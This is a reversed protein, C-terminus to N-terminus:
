DLIAFPLVDDARVRLDEVAVQLRRTPSAQVNVNALQDPSGVLLLALLAAAGLGLNSDRYMVNPVLIEGWSESWEHVTFVTCQLLWMATNTSDAAITESISLFMVWSKVRPECSGRECGVKSLWILAQLPVLLSTLSTETGMISLSVATRSIQQSHRRLTWQWIRITAFELQETGLRRFYIHM